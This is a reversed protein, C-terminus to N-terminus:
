SGERQQADRGAQKREMFEKGFMQIAEYQNHVRCRLRLNAVTSKGDLCVPCIHDFELRMRSECRHGGEAVFTCRGGDRKRVSRRVRAPVRHTTPQSLAEPEQERPKEVEAYKQKELQAVLEVLAKEVIQAADAGPLAHGLLEKAARIADHAEQSITCRLEFRSPALPTVVPFREIPLAIWQEVAPPGVPEPVLSQQLTSVDTPSASAEANELSASTMRMLVPQAKIERLTTPVDDQPFRTAILMQVQLKTKYTAAEILDRINERTFRKSLLTVATLHLRGDTIAALIAPYERSLRAARIRKYAEDDSMHFVDVCYAHMSSYGAGAFLFRSDVEGMCVILEALHNRTQTLLVEFRDLLAANSLKKYERLAMANMRVPAPRRPCTFESCTCYRM